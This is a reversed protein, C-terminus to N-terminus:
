PTSPLILQVYVAAQAASVLISWDRVGSGAPPHGSIRYAGAPISFSFSGDAASVATGATQGSGNATLTIAVGAVPQYILSDSKSGAPAPRLALAQGHIVVTGTYPAGGSDAPPPSSRPPTPPPPSSHTATDSPTGPAPKNPAPTGSTDNTKATGLTSSQQSVTPSVPNDRGCAAGLAAATVLMLLATSRNHNV